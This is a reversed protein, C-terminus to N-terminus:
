LPEKVVVKSCVRLLVENSVSEGRLRPLKQSHPSASDVVEVPGVGIIRKILHGHQAIAMPRGAKSYDQYSRTTM